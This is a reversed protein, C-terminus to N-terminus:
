YVGLISCYQGEVTQRRGDAGILVDFDYEAVPHNEPTLKARWGTEASVPELLTEYSVNAHIEVGLVLACKLLMCQLARISIHNIQGTCFQGYFFKAGLSKLDHIVFPWLHLINNRSFRDRKEVVVAQAGLFAVEVAM